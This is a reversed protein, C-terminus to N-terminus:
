FGEFIHALPGEIVTHLTDVTGSFPVKELRGNHRVIFLGFTDRGLPTIRGCRYLIPEGDFRREERVLDIAGRAVHARLGQTIPSADILQQLRAAHATLSDNM